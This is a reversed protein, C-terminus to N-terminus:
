EETTGTHRPFDWTRLKLRLGEAPFLDVPLVRLLVFGCDMTGMLVAMLCGSFSVDMCDNNYCENIKKSNMQRVKFGKGEHPSDTTERSRGM